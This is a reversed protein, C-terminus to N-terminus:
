ERRVGLVQAKIAEVTEATLGKVKAVSEVAKGVDAAFKKEVKERRTTSVGQAQTAARLANALDMAGKPDIGSEGAASLVEFVLTKIAEAAIVTLDDSAKADFKEALVGTIERTDDLRRSLAALKVSHRNFASFSPIAFELEGRHERQVAELKQVFEEYIETQTRDRNRLEDSAWAIVPTAEAPLLEIGSLRGRGKKAM